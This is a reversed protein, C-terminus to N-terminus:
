RCEVGTQEARLVRDELVQGWAYSLRWRARFWGKRDFRCRALLADVSATLLRGILYRPVGFWRTAECGQERSSLRYQGRGFRVARGLIWSVETHSRPILHEVTARQCFWLGVGADHLRRVLDTESGMAYSSGNPGIRVDFRYGRAFLDARVSMNPGFVTHPGTPGDTAATQSFTPGLPVSELLWADPPTEWRPVVTGGFVGCDPHADAAARLQTLWDQRPIADDDTFVVLDGDVHALGANLAANKGPQPAFLYTLPLRQRYAEVVTRTSDTSGNDIVILKWGGEPAELACYRELVLPLTEAGNRTAMLVTTV